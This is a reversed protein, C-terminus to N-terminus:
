LGIQALVSMGRLRNIELNTLVDGKHNLVAIGRDMLGPLTDAFLSPRKLCALRTIDSEKTFQFSKMAPSSSLFQPLAELMSMATTTDPMTGFRFRVSAVRPPLEPSPGGPTTDWIRDGSTVLELIRLNLCSEKIAKFMNYLVETDVKKSIHLQLFRLQPGYKLFFQVDEHIAPPGRLCVMTNTDYIANRLVPFDLRLFDQFWRGAQNWYYITRVHPLHVGSTAFEMRNSIADIRPHSLYFDRFFDRWQIGPRGTQSHQFDTDLVHFSKLSVPCSLLIQSVGIQLSDRFIDISPAIVIRELNHLHTVLQVIAILDVIPDQDMEALNDRMRVDLRRVLMPFPTNTDENGHRALSEEM